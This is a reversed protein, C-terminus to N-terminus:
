AHIDTNRTLSQRRGARERPSKRERALLWDQVTTIRYYIRRGLLTSAPGKRQRRWERLSRISVNLQDALAAEGILGALVRESPPPQAAELAQVRAILDFTDSQLGARQQYERQQQEHHTTQKNSM